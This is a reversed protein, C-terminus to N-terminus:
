AAKQHQAIWARAADIDTFVKFPRKATVATRCLDVLRNHRELGTLVALPGVARRRRAVFDHMRKRFIEIQDATLASRGSTADFIKGYSTAWASRVADFYGDLDALTVDGELKAVVIRDPHYVSVHIPV